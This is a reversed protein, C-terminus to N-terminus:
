GNRQAEKIYFEDSEIGLERARSRLKTARAELDVRDQEVFLGITILHAILGSIEPDGLDLSAQPDNITAYAAMAAARDSQSIDTYAGVKEAADKLNALGERAFGWRMLEAHSLPDFYERYETKLDASLLKPSMGVYGRGLPDNILEDRLASM